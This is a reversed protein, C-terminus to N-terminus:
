AITATYAPHQKYFALEAHCQLCVLSEAAMTEPPYRVVAFKMCGCTCRMRECHPIKSLKSDKDLKVYTPTM